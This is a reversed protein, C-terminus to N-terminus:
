TNKIIAYSGSLMWRWNRAPRFQFALLLELLGEATMFIALVTVFAKLVVLPKWVVAFGIVVSLCASLLAWWHMKSRLTLVFQLVGTLLLIFGVILEIHLATTAPFLAALVGAMIFITGQFIYKGKHMSLEHEIHEALTNFERAKLATQTFLM